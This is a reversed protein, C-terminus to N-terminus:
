PGPLRPPLPPGPCLQLAVLAADLRRRHRRVPAPDRDLVVQGRHQEDHEVDLDNEQIGPRDGEVLEAGETHGAVNPRAQQAMSSNMVPPGLCSRARNPMSRADLVGRCASRIITAPRPLWFIAGTSRCIYSWIASGFHTMEIPTHAELPPM